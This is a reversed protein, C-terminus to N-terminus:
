RIDYDLAHMLDCILNHLYETKNLFRVLELGNLNSKPSNDYDDILAPNALIDEFAYHVRVYANSFDILDIPIHEARPRKENIIFQLYFDVRKNFQESNFWTFRQYLERIIKDNLEDRKKHPNSFIISAIVFTFAYLEREIRPDQNLGNYKLFEM